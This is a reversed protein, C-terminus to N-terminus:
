EKGRGRLTNLSSLMLWGFLIMLIMWLAILFLRYGQFITDNSIMLLAITTILWIPLSLVGAFINNKAKEYRNATFYPVLIGLYLLIGDTVFFMGGILLLIVKYYKIFFYSHEPFILKNRDFIFLASFCFVGIVATVTGTIKNAKGLSEM